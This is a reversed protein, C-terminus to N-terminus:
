DLYLTESNGSEGASVREKFRRKSEKLRAKRIDLRNGSWGCAECGYENLIEKGLWVMETECRPCYRRSANREHRHILLFAVGVLIALVIFPFLIMGFM